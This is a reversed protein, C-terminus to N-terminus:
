GAYLYVLNFYDAINEPSTELKSINVPEIPSLIFVGTLPNVVGSLIPYNPVLKIGVVVPINDRTTIDMYWCLGRGSYRITINYSVKALSTSYTYYPSNELHLYNIKISM